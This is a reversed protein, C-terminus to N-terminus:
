QAPFPPQFGSVQAILAPPARSPLLRYIYLDLDLIPDLGLDLLLGLVTVEELPHRVPHNALQVEM